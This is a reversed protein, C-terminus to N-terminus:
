PGLYEWEDSARGPEPKVWDAKFGQWGRTVCEAIADPLTWGAKDAERKIGAVVTRTVPARKAKRLAIFDAWVEPDIDAPMIDGRSAISPEKITISPKPASNAPTPHLIQPPKQLKQPPASNAPTCFKRPDIKFQHAKGPADDWSCFGNGRLWQIATQVARESKSCKRAITAVSPWCMGNDNAFDCLCLLVMKPGSPIDLDWAEAMLKISM